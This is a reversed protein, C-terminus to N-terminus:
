VGASKLHSQGQVRHIVGSRNIKIDRTLSSEYEEIYIARIRPPIRGNGSIKLHFERIKGSPLDKVCIKRQKHALVKRSKRNTEKGVIFSEVLTKLKDREKSVLELQKELTKIREKDARKPPVEEKESKRNLQPQHDGPLNGSSSKLCCSPQLMRTGHVPTEWFFSQIPAVSSARLRNVAATTAKQAKGKLKIQMVEVIRESSWETTRTELATFFDIIAERGETGNLIPLEKLVKAYQGSLKVKQLEMELEMQAGQVPHQYPWPQPVFATQMQQPVSFAQNQVPPQSAPYVQMPALCEATEMYGYFSSQASSARNEGPGGQGIGVGFNMSQQVQAGRPLVRYEVFEGQEQVGFNLNPQVQAGRSSARNQSNGSNNPYAIM